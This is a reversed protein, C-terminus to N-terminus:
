WTLVMRLPICPPLLMMDASPHPLCTLFLPFSKYIFVSVDKSSFMGETNVQSQPFFSSALLCFNFSIAESASESHETTASSSDLEPHM